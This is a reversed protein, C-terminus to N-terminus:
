PLLVSFAVKGYENTTDEYFDVIETDTLNNILTSEASVSLGPFTIGKDGDFWAKFEAVATDSVIFNVEINPGNIVRKIGLLKDNIIWDDFYTEYVWSANINEAIYQSLSISRDIVGAPVSIVNKVIKM